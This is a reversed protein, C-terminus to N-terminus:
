EPKETTAEERERQKQYFQKIEQLIKMVNEPLQVRTATVYAAVSAMLGAYSILEKQAAWLEEQTEALQQRLVLNLCELASRDEDM